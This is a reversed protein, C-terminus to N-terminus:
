HVQRLVGETFERKYNRYSGFKAKDADSISLALLAIAKVACHACDFKGLVYGGDLIVTVEKSSPTHIIGSVKKECNFLAVDRNIVKIETQATIIQM